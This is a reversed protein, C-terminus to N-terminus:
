RRARRIIGLISDRELLYVIWIFGLFLLTNILLMVIFGAATIEGIFESLYYLALGSFALPVILRLNYNVPFFKQGFAYCLIAMLVYCALTAYASGGVGIVPLLIVNLLITIAAGVVSILAGYITKDTLKYWISINYYLGLCFFAVLLVPVYYLYERYSRGILWQILDLYLVIGAMLISGAVAFASAADAYVKKHNEEKAQQFFFPEAAYNYATIFLSMLIAIRTAAAYTGGEALNQLLSNPLIYKQFTIYSSQNIVGAVGVVILPWTYKLMRGVLNEERNLRLRAYRPLFMAFVVGSAILNSVFVYLLRDDHDYFQVAWQVGRGALRPLIELFFMVAAINILIGGVKLLAFRVPRHDLRLSAFPIAVLVDLAIILGLILVHTEFGPYELFTAIGERFFLVFAIWALSTVVLLLSAQSYVAQYRAKDSAYRFFTTEMRLSLIILVLAVYFYFDTYLGYQEEEGDFKWTLYVTILLYTLVRGLIYGSGYILTDGALRRLTM